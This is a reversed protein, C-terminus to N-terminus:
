QAYISVASQSKRVKIYNWQSSCLSTLNPGVILLSAILCLDTAESVCHRGGKHQFLVPLTETYSRIALFDM